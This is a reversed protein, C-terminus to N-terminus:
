KSERLGLQWLTRQTAKTIAELTYRSALNCRQHLKRYSWGCCYHRAAWRLRLDLPSAKGRERNRPQPVLLPLPPRSALAIQRRVKALCTQCYDSWVKDAKARWTEASDRLADFPPPVLPPMEIQVQMPDPLVVIGFHPWKKAPIGEAECALLFRYQLIGHGDLGGPLYRLQATAAESIVDADARALIGLAIEPKWDHYDFSRIPQMLTAQWAPAIMADAETRNLHVASLLAPAGPANEATFQPEFGATETPTVAGGSQKRRAPGGPKSRIPPSM